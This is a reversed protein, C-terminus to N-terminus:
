SYYHCKIERCGRYGGPLYFRLRSYCAFALNDPVLKLATLLQKFFVPLGKELQDSSPRAGALQLSKKETAALIEKEHKLLFEYLM